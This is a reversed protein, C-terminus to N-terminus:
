KVYFKKGRVIYIGKPLQTGVTGVRRGFLDYVTTDENVKIPVAIHEAIDTTEENGAVADIAIRITASEPNEEDDFISHDLVIWGRFGKIRMDRNMEYITNNSVAYTRGNSGPVYLSDPAAGQYIGNANVAFSSYYPTQIYNVYATGNNQGGYSSISYHNGIATSDMWFHIYNPDKGNPDVSFFNRGLQYYTTLNGHPDEGQVPDITPKLLYFKGPELVISDANELKLEVHRFDIVNPNQSLTGIGVLELLEADEGFAYRVQEGTLPLPLSFSNWQNKKMTRELSLAGSYLFDPNANPREEIHNPDFVLYDLSEEDEYLFAPALGMFSMKIDDICVLDTDYYYNKNNQTLPTTSKTAADKKFGITLTKYEPGLEFLEPDIRVWFKRHHDDGHATLMQGIALNFDKNRKNCNNAAPFTIDPYRAILEPLTDHELPVKGYGLYPSGISEMQEPTLNVGGAIAFMEVPNGFSVVSAEVQYWGPHPLTFTVSVEGIGEFTMYGYKADKMTGFTQKLRVPADWAENYVTTREKPSSGSTEAQNNNVGVLGWTYGYRGEGSAPTTSAPSVVWEGYFDDANRVFDRDPILSSISPNIGQIEEDLVREFEERSIVRWQYLERIPVMDGNVLVLSDNEYPATENASGQNGPQGATTWCARDDDLHVYYGNGKDNETVNDSFKAGLAPNGDSCWEGYAAGYYFRKNNVGQYYKSSSYQQYMYYTHYESEGDEVRVFNWRSASSGDMVSTFSFKYGELWSSGKTVGPVNCVLYKLSSTVNETIRSSIYRTKLLDMERGFDEYFLRGEVGWNGGDILFRGTGVNYLYIETTDTTGHAFYDLVDIGKWQMTTSHAHTTQACLRAGNITFAVLTLLVILIIRRMIYEFFVIVKRM